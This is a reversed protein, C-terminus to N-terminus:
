KSPDCVRTRIGVAPTPPTAGCFFEEEEPADWGEQETKDLITCQIPLPLRPVAVEPLCFNPSAERAPQLQWAVFQMLAHRFAQLKRTRTWGQSDGAIIKGHRRLFQTGKPGTGAWPHWGMPCFLFGNSHCLSEEKNVKAIEGGALSTKVTAPDRQHSPGLPDHVVLYIGFPGRVDVGDIAVDAPRQKGGISVEIRCSLGNDRLVQALADRVAHHRQTPQNLKCSVLHDGYVDMTQGCCPCDTTAGAFLSLGLWWRLLVRYESGTFKTGLAHSPTVEM